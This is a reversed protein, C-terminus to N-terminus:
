GCQLNFPHHYGNQVRTIQVVALSVSLIFLASFGALRDFLFFEHQIHLIDLERFPAAFMNGLNIDQITVKVSEGNQFEPRFVQRTYEAIGDREKRTSSLVLIKLPKDKM